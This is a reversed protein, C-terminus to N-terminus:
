GGTTTQTDTTTASNTTATPTAVAVAGTVVGDLISQLGTGISDLSATLFENKVDDSCGTTLALPLVLLALLAGGTCFIRGRGSAQVGNKRQNNM